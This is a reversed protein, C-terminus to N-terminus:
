GWGPPVGLLPMSRAPVAPGLTGAVTVEALSAVASWYGVEVAGTTDLYPPCPIALVDGGHHDVPAFPGEATPGRHM